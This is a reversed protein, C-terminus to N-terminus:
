WDTCADDRVSVENLFRKGTAVNEFYSPRGGPVAAYFQYRNVVLGGASHVSFVLGDATDQNKVSSPNSYRRGPFTNNRALEAIWASDQEGAYRMEHRRDARDDMRPWHQGLRRADTTQFVSKIRSFVAFELIAKDPPPPPKEKRIAKKPKLDADAQQSNSM